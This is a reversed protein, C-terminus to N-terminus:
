KAAAQLIGDVIAEAADTVFFQKSAFGMKQEREPDSIIKKLESIFIGSLLNPEEIVIGAGNKTFDYANMRQHGNSGDDHPILIAPVGFAALESLTTNGARSVAVDAAALALSMDKDGLYAVPEYRNMFSAELLAADSLRKVEAFNSPGTQHLVQTEKVIASLNALIFNNIREAGQSGGLVLLLPKVPDFGLTEKALEKTTPNAFLARRVPVGTRSTLNPNFYKAAADFSVFIRKAFFSSAVNTLGPKADSDHIVVPIRYLWGALVVPFAGTGGKSFIVDPMIVYLKALAQFFGIFFKPIDMINQISLYRRIKGAAVFNVAIGANKFLAAYTDNPGLYALDLQFQMKLARERLAEAVALLPYTHGGSGGGTLVVRFTQDAM